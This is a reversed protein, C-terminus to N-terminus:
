SSMYTKNHAFHCYDSITDFHFIFNVSFFNFCKKNLKLAFSFNWNQPFWIPFVIYEYKSVNIRHMCIRSKRNITCFYTNQILCIWTWGGTKFAAIAILLSFGIWIRKAFYKRSQIITYLYNLHKIHQNIIICYFSNNWCFILAQM